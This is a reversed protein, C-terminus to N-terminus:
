KVSKPHTNNIFHNLVTTILILALISVNEVYRNKCNINVHCHTYSTLSVTHARLSLIYPRRISLNYVDITSYMYLCAVSM